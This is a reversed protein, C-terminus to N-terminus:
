HLVVGLDLRFIVDINGIELEGGGGFSVGLDPIDSKPQKSIEQLVEIGRGPQKLIEKM